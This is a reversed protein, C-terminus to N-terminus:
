PTSENLKAIKRLEGLSLQMFGVYEPIGAVTKSMDGMTLKHSDPKDSYHALILKLHDDWTLGDSVPEKSPSNEIKPRLGDLCRRMSGSVYEDTKELEDACLYVKTLYIAIAKYESNSFENM